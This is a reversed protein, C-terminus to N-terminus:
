DQKAPVSVDKARERFSGLRSAAVSVVSVLYLQGIVAEAIALARMIDIGPTVDGYGLTALTVFSFYVAGSIGQTGQTFADPRLYEVFVYTLGFAVGVLVYVVLLGMVLQLTVREYTALRRVVAIITVLTLGIWLLIGTLRGAGGGLFVAAVAIVFLGVFVASGITRTRPSFGSVRLTLLLAGVQLLAGVAVIGSPLPAGAAILVLATALVFLLTAGYADRVQREERADQVATDVAM